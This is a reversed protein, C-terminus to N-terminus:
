IIYCPAFNEVGEKQICRVRLTKKDEEDVGDFSELSHGREEMDGSDAAVGIVIPTQGKQLAM